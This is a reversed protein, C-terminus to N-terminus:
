EGMRAVPHRRRGALAAAGTCIRVSSVPARRGVPSPPSKAAERVDDVRARSARLYPTSCLPVCPLPPWTLSLAQAGCWEVVVGVSGCEWVGVCWVGCCSAREACPAIGTARRHCRPDDRVPTATGAAEGRWRWEVEVSWVGLWSAGRQVLDKTAGARLTAAPPPPRPLHSISPPAWVPPPGHGPLQSRDRRACM